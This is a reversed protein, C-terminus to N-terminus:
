RRPDHANTRDGRNRFSQLLGTEFEFVDVQDFEVFGESTLGESHHAFAGQRALPDVDVAAGDRETMREPARPRLQSDRDEVLKASALLAVSQHGHADAAAHATRADDLAHRLPELFAAMRVECAVLLLRNLRDNFEF